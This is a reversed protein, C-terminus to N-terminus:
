KQTSGTLWTEFAMWMASGAACRRRVTAGPSIWGLHGGKPSPADESNVRALDEFKAGKKLENIVDQRNQQKHTTMFNLKSRQEIDMNTIPEGNVMVVITQARAPASCGIAALLIAAVLTSLRLSPM